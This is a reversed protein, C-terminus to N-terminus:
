YTLGALTLTRQITDISIKKKFEKKHLSHIRSAIWLDTEFGYDSAKQKTLNVIWIIEETTLKKNRGSGKKRKLSNIDGESEKYKTEWKHITSPMVGNYEAIDIKREDRNIAEIALKKVEFTAQPKNVMHLM